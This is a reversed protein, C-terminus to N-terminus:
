QAPADSSVGNGGSGRESTVGVYSLATANLTAHCEQRSRCGAVQPSSRASCAAPPRRSFPLPCVSAPQCNLPLSGELMNATGADCYLWSQIRQPM